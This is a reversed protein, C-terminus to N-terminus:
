QKMKQIFFELTLGWALEAAEANFSAREDCFFGHEADSFEVNITKKGVKTLEEKIIQAHEKPIHEDKGGWFFLHPANLSAARKVLDPVIGGGYYSAVAKFPHLTNALFSVRGGLCYGTAVIHEHTVQSNSQLWNWAAKIDMELNPVTIAQMHPMASQFDTYPIEIGAPGSRHFLEPAIVLYGEDAFRDALKRIHHNVGFAEQFLILGPFPSKGHAPISTYAQMTTGDAVQLQVFNQLGSM